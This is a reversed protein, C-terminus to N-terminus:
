ETFLLGFLKPAHRSKVLIDKLLQHHGTDLKRILQYLQSQLTTELSSSKHMIEISM